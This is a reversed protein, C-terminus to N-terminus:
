SPAKAVSLDSILATASLSVSTTPWNRCVDPESLVAVPSIREPAFSRLSRVVLCAAVISCVEAAM